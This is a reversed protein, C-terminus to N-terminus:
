MSTDNLLKKTVTNMMEEAVESTPDLIPYSLALSFLQNPRIKGDGLVDYLCKRKPQYFKEQFAIKCKKALEGYPKAEKAGEFQKTLEEMIKLANYWLSNMEVAKGNRPTVAFDGYKADM